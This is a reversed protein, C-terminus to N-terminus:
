LRANLYQVMLSLSNLLKIGSLRKVMKQSLDKSSTIRITHWLKYIKHKLYNFNYDLHNSEIAIMKTNLEEQWLEVTALAVNVATLSKGTGPPGFFLSSIGLITDSM